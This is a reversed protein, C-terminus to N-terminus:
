TLLHPTQPIYREGRKTAKERKLLNCPNIGGKGERRARLRWGKEGLSVLAEDVLKRISKKRIKKVHGNNPLNPTRQAACLCREQKSTRKEKKSRSPSYDRKKKGHLDHYSVREKPEASSHKKKTKGTGLLV